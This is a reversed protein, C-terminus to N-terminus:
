RGINRTHRVKGSSTDSIVEKLTLDANNIVHQLV